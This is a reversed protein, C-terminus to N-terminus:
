ESVGSGGVPEGGAVLPVFRCYTLTERFVQGGSRVMRQLAQGDSAGIPAVLVGGDALQSLLETPCEDAAAAVLIRDYPAEEPRGRSGDAVKVCVNTYGLEALRRVAETALEEFREIAVVESALEALVASQYGSGSGIELVREGGNLNLAQTMLAVMYPQSITQGCGIPWARDGYAEAPSPVNMFLERPIKAMADLVRQDRIGRRALHDRLMKERAQQLQLDM